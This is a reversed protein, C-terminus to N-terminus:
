RRAGLLIRAAVRGRIQTPRDNIRLTPHKAMARGITGFEGPFPGASGKPMRREEALELDM